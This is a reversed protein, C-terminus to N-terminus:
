NAELTHRVERGDAPNCVHEEVRLAKGGFLWNLARSNARRQLEPFGARTGGVFSWYGGPALRDRVKPALVALPVFGTIFHTAILDFSEDPFHADFNAATDLVAGLDPLRARAIEIMKNSLDLGFPQVPRGAHARLKQLFRGTGVGLDLARLPAAGGGLFQEDRL